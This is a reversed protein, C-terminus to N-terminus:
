RSASLAETHQGGESPGSTESGAPPTRMAPSESAGAKNEAAPPAPQQRGIGLGLLLGGTLLLATVAATLMFTRRRRSASLEDNPDSGNM